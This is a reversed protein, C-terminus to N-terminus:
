KEKRYYFLCIRMSLLFVRIYLFLQYWFLIFSIRRLYINNIWVREEEIFNGQRFLFQKTFLVFLYVHLFFFSNKIPSYCFIIQFDFLEKLLYCVNVILVISQAKIVNKYISTFYIFCNSQNNFAIFLFITRTCLFVNLVQYSYELPQPVM